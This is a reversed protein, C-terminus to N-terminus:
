VVTGCRVTGYRVISNSTRELEEAITRSRRAESRWQSSARGAHAAGPQADRTQKHLAGMEEAVHQVAPVRSIFSEPVFPMPM